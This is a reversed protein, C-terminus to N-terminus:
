LICIYLFILLYICFSPSIVPLLVDDNNNVNEDVDNVDDDNFVQEIAIKRQEEEMKLIDKMRQMQVNQRFLLDGPSSIQIAFPKVFVLCNACWTFSDWGLPLGGYTFRIQCLWELRTFNMIHIYGYKSGRPREFICVFTGDFNFLIDHIFDFQSQWIIDGNILSVFLLYTIKSKKHEAVISVISQSPHLVFAWYVTSYQKDFLSCNINVTKIELENKVDM